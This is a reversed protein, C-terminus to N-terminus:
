EATKVVVGYANEDIADLGNNLSAAVGLAESSQAFVEYGVGELEVTAGGPPTKTLVSYEQGSEPVFVEEAQREYDITSPDIAYGTGRATGSM